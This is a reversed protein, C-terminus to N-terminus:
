LRIFEGHEKTFSASQRDPIEPVAEFPGTLGTGKPTVVIPRNVLVSQLVGDLPLKASPHSRPRIM